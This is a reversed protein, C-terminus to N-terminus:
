DLGLAGSRMAQVVTHTRNLTGLRNAVNRYHFMVTASSIGLIDAVDEASKGLAFWRLVDRERGSLALQVAARDAELREFEGHFAQALMVVWPVAGAEFERSERVICVCGKDGSQLHVPVVLGFDVGHATARDLVDLAVPNAVTPRVSEWLFPRMTTLVRATLPCRDVLHNSDYHDVWADLKPGNYRIAHDRGEDPFGAVSVALVDQDRLAMAFTATLEGLDGASRMHDICDFVDDSRFM